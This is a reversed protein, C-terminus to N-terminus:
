GTKVLSERDLGELEEGNELYRFGFDQSFSPLRLARVFQAYRRRADFGPAFRLFPDDGAESLERTKEMLRLQVAKVTDIDGMQLAESMRESLEHFENDLEEPEGHLAQQLSQVAEPRDFALAIKEADGGRDVEMFDSLDEAGYAPNSSYSEIFTGSSYVQLLLVDDDYFQVSVAPCSLKGTLREAFARVIEFDFSESEKEAILTWGHVTPGVFATNGLEKLCDVVDVQSPGCVTLNTFSAGM